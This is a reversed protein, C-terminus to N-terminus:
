HDDYLKMAEYGQRSHERNHFLNHGGEFEYTSTRVKLVESNVINPSLAELFTM